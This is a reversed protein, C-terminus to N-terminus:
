HHPALNQGYQLLRSTFHKCFFAPVSDSATVDPSQQAAAHTDLTPIFSPFTHTDLTPSLCM